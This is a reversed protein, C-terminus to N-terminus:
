GSCEHVWLWVWCVMCEEVRGGCRCKECGRSVGYEGTWLRWSLVRAEDVTCCESIFEDIGAARCGVLVGEFM